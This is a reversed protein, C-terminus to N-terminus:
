LVLVSYEELLTETSYFMHAAISPNKLFLSMKKLFTTYIIFKKTYKTLM